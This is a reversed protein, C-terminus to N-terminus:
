GSGFVTASSFVAAAHIEPFFIRDYHRGADTNELIKLSLFKTGQEQVILLM